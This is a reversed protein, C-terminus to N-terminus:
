QHGCLTALFQITDRKFNTIQVDTIKKKAKLQQLEYKIGYGLDFDDNPSMQHEVKTVDIKLLRSATSANKMVGKKIFKSCLQRIINELEEALFPAMPRYTQFVRLFSNLVRALDEFFQLKVPVLPDKYAICLHDFSTNAGLKGKGPRKSKPLNMWYDIIIKMKEWIARGRKAVPENECWRHGCFQLGYDLNEALALREYDARRSPSEDFLANENEM